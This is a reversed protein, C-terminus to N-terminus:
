KVPSTRQAHLMLSYASAAWAVCVLFTVILVATLTNATWLQLLLVIAGAVGYSLPVAGANVATILPLQTSDPLQKIFSNVSTETAGISLIFDVARASASLWLLTTAHEPTLVAVLLMLIVLPIVGLPNVILGFGIGKKQLMRGAGLVLFLLSGFTAVAILNGFFRTLDVSSTLVQAATLPVLFMILLTALSSLFQYGLLQRPLTANVLQKIAVPRKAQSGSKQVPDQALQPFNKVTSTLFLLMLLLIFAGVLLIQLEGHLWESLPAILIGSAIIALTQIALMIPFQTKMQLPTFLRNAQTTVVIVLFAMALAYGVFLFYAAIDLRAAHALLWAVCQLVVFVAVTAMNLKATSWVRQLKNYAFMFPPMLACAWLYAYPLDQAGNTLIFTTNGLAYLLAVCFAACSAQAALYALPSRTKELSQKSTQKVHVGV